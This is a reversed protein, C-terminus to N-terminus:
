SSSVPLCALEPDGENGDHVQDTREALSLPMQVTAIIHLQSRKTVQTPKGVIPFTSDVIM